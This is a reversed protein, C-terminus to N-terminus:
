PVVLGNVKVLAPQGPQPYKPNAHFVQGDPRIAGAGKVVGEKTKKWWLDPQKKANHFGEYCSQGWAQIVDDAHDKVLKPLGGDAIGHQAKLAAMKKWFKDVSHHNEADRAVFHTGFWGLILAPKTLRRWASAMSIFRPEGPVPVGNCGLIVMLSVQKLSGTAAPIPIEQPVQPDSRYGFWELQRTAADIGQGAYPCYRGRSKYETGWNMVLYNHNLHHHSGIMWCDVPEAYLAHLFAHFRRSPLTALRGWGDGNLDSLHFFTFLRDADTSGLVRIGLQKKAVYRLEAHLPSVENARDVSLLKSLMAEKKFLLAEDINLGVNQFTTILLRSM